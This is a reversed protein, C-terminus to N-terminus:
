TAYVLRYEGSPLSEIDIPSKVPEGDTLYDQWESKDLRQLTMGPEDKGYDTRIGLDGVVQIV